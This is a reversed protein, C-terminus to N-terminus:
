AKEYANSEYNFRYKDPRLLKLASLGAGVLGVGLNVGMVFTVLRASSSLFWVSFIAVIGGFMVLLILDKKMRIKKMRSYTNLLNCHRRVKQDLQFIKVM